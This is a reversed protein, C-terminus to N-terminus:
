FGLTIGTVFGTGENMGGTVNKHGTTDEVTFVSSKWAVGPALAYSASLMTATREGGADDEHTMHGLSVAMPGDSYSVSAGMVDYDKSMDKVVKEAVWFDNGPDNNTASEATTATAAAPVTSIVPIAQKPSRTGTTAEYTFDSIAGADAAPSRRCMRWQRRTPAATWLHRLRCQLKFAGFGVGFGVNTYTSDGGKTMAMGDTAGMIAARGMLGTKVISTPELQDDALGDVKNEDVNQDLYELKKWAEEHM